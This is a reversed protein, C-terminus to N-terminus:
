GGRGVRPRVARPKPGGNTLSRTGLRPACSQPDAETALKGTLRHHPLGLFRIRLCGSGSQLRSSERRLSCGSADRCLQPKTVSSNHGTALMAGPLFRLPFRLFGVGAGWVGPSLSVGEGLVRSLGLCLLWGCSRGGGCAAYPGELSVTGSGSGLEQAGEDREAEKWARSSRGKASCCKFSCVTEM